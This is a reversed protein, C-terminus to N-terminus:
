FTCTIEFYPRTTDAGESSVGMIISDIASTHIVIGYNDRDGSLWSEILDTDIPIAFWGAAALAAIALTGAATTDHDTGSGMCGATTWPDEDGYEDWCCSYPTDASRDAPAGTGETWNRLVGYATLTFDQTNASPDLYLYLKASSVSATSPLNSLGSFKILTAGQMNDIGIFAYAGLNITNVPAGMFKSLIVADECGSYMDLSNEGIKITHSIATTLPIATLVNSPDSENLSTDIDTVRFYYTTGPNLQLISLEILGNANLTTSKNDIPSQGYNCLESKWEGPTSTFYIKYGLHDVADSKSWELTVGGTVGTAYLLPLTDPPTTDRVVREEPLNLFLCKWKITDTNTDPERELVLTPEGYFTDFRLDAQDGAHIYDYSMDTKFECIKMLYKLRTLAQEGCWTAGTSNRILINFNATASDDVDEDPVLFLREGYEAISTADTGTVQAVSGSNNYCVRYSNRIKIPNDISYYQTYSKPLIDTIQNGIEGDYPTLMIMYIVNQIPKIRCHGIRQLENVVTMCDTTNDSDYTIDVYLSNAAHVNIAKQFGSYVINTVPIGAVNTLIEYICQAPTKDSSNSYTCDKNSLDAIYSSAEVLLKNDSDTARLDRIRSKFTTRGKDTDYLEMESGINAGAYFLSGVYRDDYNTKDTNDLEITEVDPITQFDEASIAEYGQPYKLINDEDILTNNIYLEISM